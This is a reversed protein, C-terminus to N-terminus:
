TCQTVGMIAPEAQSPTFPLGRPTLTLETGSIGYQWARRQKCGNIRSGLCHVRLRRHSAGWRGTRARPMPVSKGKPAHLHHGRAIRIGALRLNAQSRLTNSHGLCGPCRTKWHKRSSSFTSGGNPTLLCAQDLGTEDTLTHSQNAASLHVPIQQGAEFYGSTSPSKNGTLLITPNHANFEAISGNFLAAITSQQNGSEFTEVNYGSYTAFVMTNRLALVTACTGGASLGAVVFPHAGTAANFGALIYAPADQTLHTKATGLRRNVCETDLTAGNANGNTDPMVIPPATGGHKSAFDTATMYVDAAGTWDSPQGLYGVILEIVPLEPEPNHLWVPPITVEAEM